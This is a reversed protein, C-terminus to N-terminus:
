RSLVEISAQVRDGVTIAERRRVDAKVPLVYSDDHPFLATSWSSGGIRAEVRRAANGSRVSKIEEIIEAPLTVFHWAGPGEDAWMQAEFQYRLAVALGRKM